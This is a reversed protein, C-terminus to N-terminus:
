CEMWPPYVTQVIRDCPVSYILSRRLNRLPAKLVFSLRAPSTRTIKNQFDWQTVQTGTYTIGYWTVPDHLTGTLFVTRWEISCYDSFAGSSLITCKARYMGLLLLNILFWYRITSRTLRETKIIRTENQGIVIQQKEKKQKKWDIPFKYNLHWKMRINFYCAWGESWRRIV